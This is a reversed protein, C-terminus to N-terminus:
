TNVIFSDCQIYMTCSGGYTIWGVHAVMHIWEVLAVSHMWQLHVVSHICPVQVVSYIWELNAVTCSGGHTDM